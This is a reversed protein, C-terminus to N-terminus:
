RSPSSEGLTFGDEVGLHGTKKYENGQPDTVHWVRKTKLLRRARGLDPHNYGCGGLRLTSRGGEALQREVGACYAGL